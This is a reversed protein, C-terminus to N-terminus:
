FHLGPFSKALDAGFKRAVHRVLETNNGVHQLILGHLEPLKGPDLHRYMIESVAEAAYSPAGQAQLLSAFAFNNDGLPHLGVDRHQARLVRFLQKIHDLRHNRVAIGPFYRRM